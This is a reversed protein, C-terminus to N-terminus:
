WCGLGSSACWGYEVPTCMYRPSTSPYASAIQSRWSAAQCLAWSPAQARFPMSVLSTGIADPISHFPSAHARTIHVHPHTLATSAPVPAHSGLCVSTRGQCGVGEGIVRNEEEERRLHQELISFLVVPHVNVAQIGAKEVFLVDDGGDQCGVDVVCNFSQKM